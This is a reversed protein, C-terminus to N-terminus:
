ILRDLWNIFLRNHSIALLVEIAILFVIIIELRTSHKHNMETSLINYLEQILNLRNNLIEQRIRIDQFEVTMLYVPECSPRRWFFEPTDLIDSHLNITYRENFLVGIQQSLERKSMSVSGNKALEEQIPKAADLLGIVSEELTTLKISQALAHSVSLKMIVAQDGLIVLNKEEDIYTRNEHQNYDFLIFESQV